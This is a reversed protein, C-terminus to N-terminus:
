PTAGVLTLDFFRTVGASTSCTAPPCDGHRLAPGGEIKLRYAGLALGAPIPITSTLDETSVRLYTAHDIDVPDTAAYLYAIVRWTTPTSDAPWEM